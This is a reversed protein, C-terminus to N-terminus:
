ETTNQNRIAMKIRIRIPLRWPEHSLVWFDLWVSVSVRKMKLTVDGWQLALPKELLNWGFPKLLVAALLMLMWLPCSKTQPQLICISGESRFKDLQLVCDRSCFNIEWQIKRQMSISVIIQPGLNWGIRFGARFFFVMCWWICAGLQVSTALFM